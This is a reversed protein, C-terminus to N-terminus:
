YIQPSQVGGCASSKKVVREEEQSPFSWGVGGSEFIGRGQGCGFVYITFMRGEENKFFIYKKQKPFICIGFEFCFLGQGDIKHESTGVRNYNYIHDFCPFDLILDIEISHWLLVLGHGWLGVEREREGRKEKKRQQLLSKTCKNNWPTVHAHWWCWGFNM